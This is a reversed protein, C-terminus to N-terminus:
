EKYPLYELGWAWEAGGIPPEHDDLKPGYTWAGPSTRWITGWYYTDIALDELAQAKAAIEADGVAYELEDYAAMIEPYQYFRAHGTVLAQQLPITPYIQGNHHATWVMTVGRMTGFWYPVVFDGWEMEHADVMIGVDHWEAAILVCEDAITFLYPFEGWDWNAWPFDEPAAEELNEPLNCDEGTVEEYVECLLEVAAVKDDPLPEHHQYGIAQPMLYGEYPAPYRYPLVGSIAAKDIAMIAAQRVRKDQWPSDERTREAEPTPGGPRDILDMFYIGGVAHYDFLITSLDPHALAVPILSPEYVLTVDIEGTTLAAFEVSPDTVIKVVLVDYNPTRRWHNEVAELRCETPSPASVIRFPGTGVPNQAFGDLGVTEIYDKPVIAHGRSLVFPLDAYPKALHVRVVDAGGEGAGELIEIGWEGTGTLNYAIRERALPASVWQLNPDELLVRELSYKVDEATMIDGNHFPVGERITFDHYGWWDVGPTGGSTYSWDSALCPLIEGTVPDIRLLGEFAATLVADNNMGLSTGPDWGNGMSFSYHQSFVVTRIEEEEEEEEEQQEGAPACSMGPLLLSLVLLATMILFLYKKM